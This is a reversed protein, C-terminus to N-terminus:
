TRSRVRSLRWLSWEAAWWSAGMVATGDRSCGRQSPLLSGHGWACDSDGAELRRQREQQQGQGAAGHRRGILARHHFRGGGELFGRRLALPFGGLRRLGLGPALPPLDEGIRHQVGQFGLGGDGVLVELGAQGTQGLGPGQLLVGARAEKGLDPDAEAGGALTGRRSGLAQRRLGLGARGGQPPGLGADGVLGVQEAPDAAPHRRGAGIRGLALGQEMGQLQGDLGVYGLGIEGQPLQIGQRGEVGIGHGQALLGQLQELAAEIGAVHALQFQGPGAGLQGPGLGFRHAHFALPGHGFM